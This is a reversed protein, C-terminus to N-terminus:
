RRTKKVENDARTDRTISDLQEQFEKTIDMVKELHSQNLKGNGRGRRQESRALSLASSVM